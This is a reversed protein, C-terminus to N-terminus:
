NIIKTIRMLRRNPLTNPEYPSFVNEDSQVVSMKVQNLQTEFSKSFPSVCFCLLRAM